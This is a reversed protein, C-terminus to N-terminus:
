QSSLFVFHSSDTRNAALFSRDTVIDAVGIVFGLAGPLRIKLPDFRLKFALDFASQNAGIAYVRAPNLLDGLGGGAPM